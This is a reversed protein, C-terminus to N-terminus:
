GPTKGRCEAHRTLPAVCPAFNQAMPQFSRRAQEAVAKNRASGSHAMAARLDAIAGAVDGCARRALARLRRAECPLRLPDLELALSADADQLPM